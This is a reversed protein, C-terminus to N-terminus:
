HIYNKHIKLYDSTKADKRNVRYSIERKLRKCAYNEFRFHKMAKANRIYDFEGIYEIFEPAFSSKYFYLGYEADDPTTLGSFGCMDYHLVGHEKMDQMAFTHLSDTARMFGFDKHSYIYLDWGTDRMRIFMGAAIPVKPGYSALLARADKLEQEKNAKGKPDNAFKKDECEKALGDCMGDLDLETIYLVCYKGFNDVIADFFSRPHPTFGDHWSLHKEFEMLVPLDEKTGVRTTVSNLISRRLYRKRQKTFRKEIESMDDKLDVVLTYRDCWSGDYGYGYGKHTYGIESLDKTVYENNFGDLVKGTIDHPMRVVDPDVRLFLINQTDAYNKLLTFAEKYLQPKEYDISLGRPVYLYRYNMWKGHLIMATGILENDQYFGKLEYTVHETAKKFEGWMSTKMYHCYPHSIVFSDFLDRDTITRLEMM